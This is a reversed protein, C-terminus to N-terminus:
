INLLRGCVGIFYTKLQWIDFAAKTSSTLHLYIESSKNREHFRRTFAVTVDQELFYTNSFFSASVDKVLYKLLRVRMKSFKKEMVAASERGFLSFTDFFLRTLREKKELPLM